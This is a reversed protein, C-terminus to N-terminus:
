RPRGSYKILFSRIAPLRDCTHTFALPSSQDFTSRLFAEGCLVRRFAFSSVFPDGSIASASLAPVRPRTSNSEDHALFYLVPPTVTRLEYSHLLVVAKSAALIIRFAHTQLKRVVLLSITEHAPKPQPLPVGPRWAM